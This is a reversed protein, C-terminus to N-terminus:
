NAESELEDVYEYYLDIYENINSLLFGILNDEYKFLQNFEIITLGLMLMKFWYEIHYLYIEALGDYESIEVRFDNNIEYVRVTMDLLRQM